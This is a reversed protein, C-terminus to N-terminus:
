TIHGFKEGFFQAAGLVRMVYLHVSLIFAHCRESGLEFQFSLLL